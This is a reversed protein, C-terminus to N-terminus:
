FYRGLVLVLPQYWYEVGFVQSKIEAEKGVTTKFFFALFSAIYRVHVTLRVKAVIMPVNLVECVSTDFCRYFCVPYM